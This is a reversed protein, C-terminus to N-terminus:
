LRERIKILFDAPKSVVSPVKLEKYIKEAKHFCKDDLTVFFECETGYYVHMSDDVLNALKEDSKYGALDTRYYLDTVKQFKPNDKKTSKPSYTQWAQDFQLHKPSDAMAKDAVQFAKTQGKLKAREQNLYTRLSKFITYDKMAHRSFDYLDECWALMNKETRIKQFMLNFVPHHKYIDALIAPLPISRLLEWQEDVANKLYKEDEDYDDWDILETLSKHSMTLDDLAANFFETVNRHHWKVTNQGWYQTICINNSLRELTLLHQPIYAKTKQYGRLLDNIHANSYPTVIQKEIILREIQPYITKDEESLENAKEIKNFVNWDLYVFPISKALSM